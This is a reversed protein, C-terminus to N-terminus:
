QRASIIFAHPLQIFTAPEFCQKVMGAIILLGFEWRRCGLLLLLLLTQWSEGLAKTSGCQQHLLLTSQAALEDDCVRMFSTRM